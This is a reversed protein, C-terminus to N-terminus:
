PLPRAALFQFMDEERDLGDPPNNYDGDPWRLHNVLSLCADSSPATSCDGVPCAASYGTCSNADADLSASTELGNILLGRVQLGAQNADYLWQMTTYGPETAFCAAQAADCAVASDATRHVVLIPVDSVPYTALRCADGDETSTESFPDWSIGAFPDAAAFVAAAAIRNDGATATDRRAIAYLQSFFAGNSWGAVYIRNTDVIDEEVMADILADANAIDPNSSPSRLDRYYFDHHQGDRPAATPFRLNRGQVSVLVFGPRSMDGTLDYNEAKALLGAESGALDASGQGGPHFWLILPRKSTASAGSPRYICAHRTFGLVNHTYRESWPAGCSPTETPTVISQVGLEPAVRTCPTAATCAPLPASLGTAAACASPTPDVPPVNSAGGGGGGGGCAALLSLTLAAVLQRRRRRVLFRSAQSQARRRVPFLFELTLNTSGFMM